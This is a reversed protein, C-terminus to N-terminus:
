QLEALEVTRGTTGGLVYLDNGLVVTNAGSRGITLTGAIPALVGITTDIPAREITDLTGAGQGGFVYLYGGTVALAPYARATSLSAAGVVGNISGDSNLIAREVVGTVTSSGTRGGIMYISNGIVVSAHGTRPTFNIGAVIAFTSISGDVNITAREVSGEFQQTTTGSIGGIVYLNNGIVVSTHGQRPKTLVVGAVTAFPALTGDPNIPAREVRAVNGTAASGGIVYLYNGLVVTSHAFTSVIPNATAPGFTGLSGDLPVRARELSDLGMVYVNDGVVVTSQAGPGPQATTLPIATTLAGIAGSNISGREISPTMVDGGLIFLNNAVLAAMQGVRSSSLTATPTIFPGLKGDPAITACEVDRRNTGGILCYADVLGVGTAGDRAALTNPISAAESAGLDGNAAIPLREITDIAQGNSGALVYLADATVLSTHGKRATMLTVGPVVEFAGLSGDPLLPAREITGLPQSADTGGVVYLWAGIIESTMEARSTSLAVEVPEFPGLTGDAIPAREISALSSTGDFGGIIYLFGGIAVAQHQSRATM